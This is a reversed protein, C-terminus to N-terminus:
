AKEKTKVPNAGDQSEKKAGSMVEKEHRKAMDSYEKAHRTHMEKKDGGAGNDHVAHEMEQRRIMDSREHAHMVHAPLGSESGEEKAEPEKTEKKKKEVRTKGEGDHKISPSEDYLNHKPM